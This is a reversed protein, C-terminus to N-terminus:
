LLPTVCIIEWLRVTFGMEITQVHESENSEIKVSVKKKHAILLLRETRLKGKFRESGNGLM